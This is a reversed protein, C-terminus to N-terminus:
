FLEESFDDKKQLSLELEKYVGREKVFHVKKRLALEGETSIYM